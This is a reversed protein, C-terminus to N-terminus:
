PRELLALYDHAQKLETEIHGRREVAFHDAGWKEEQYLDDLFAHAMM